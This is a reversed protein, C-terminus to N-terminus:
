DLLVVVAWHLYPQQVLLHFFTVVDQRWSWQGVKWRLCWCCRIFIDDIDTLFTICCIGVWNICITCFCCCCGGTLSLPPRPPRPPLLGMMMFFYQQVCPRYVWKLFTSHLFLADPWLAFCCQGFSHSTWLSIYCPPTPRASPDVYFLCCQIVVQLGVWSRWWPLVLYQHMQVNRWVLHHLFLIGSGVIEIM